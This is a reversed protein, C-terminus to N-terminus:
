DKLYPIAPLPLPRPFPDLTEKLTSCNPNELPSASGPGTVCGGGRNGGSPLVNEVHIGKSSFNQECM